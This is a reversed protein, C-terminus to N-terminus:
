EVRRDSTSRRRAWPRGPAESHSARDPRGPSPDRSLVQVCLASMCPEESATAGAALVGAWYVRGGSPAVRSWFLPGAPRCVLGLSDEPIRCRPRRPASPRRFIGSGCGDVLAWGARATRARRHMGGERLDGQPPPGCLEVPEDCFAEGLYGVSAAIADGVEQGVWLFFSPEAQEHRSRGCPAASPRPRGWM